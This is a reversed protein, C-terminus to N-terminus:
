GSRCVVKWSLDLCCHGDGVGSNVSCQVHQINVPIFTYVSGSFVVDAEGAVEVIGYREVDSFESQSDEEQAVSCLLWWWGAQLMTTNLSLHLLSKKRRRIWLELVLFYNRTVKIFSSLYLLLLLLLSKKKINGLRLTKLRRHLGVSLGVLAYLLHWYVAIRFTICMVIHWCEWVCCPYNSLLIMPVSWTSLLHVSWCSWTSLLHVSLCSWTSLDHPYCTPLDVPDHLYVM